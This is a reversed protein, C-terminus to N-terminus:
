NCYAYGGFQASFTLTLNNNDIHTVEGEYETGATDVVTVSPHKGLNHSVTWFTSPVGQTHTYSLDHGAQQIPIENADNVVYPEGTVIDIGFTAESETATPATIIVEPTDDSIIYPLGTILDIGYSAM